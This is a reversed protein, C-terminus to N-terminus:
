ILRRIEIIALRIADLSWQKAARQDLLQRITRCAGELTTWTEGAEAAKSHAVGALFSVAEGREFGEQELRRLLARIDDALWVARQQELETPHGRHGHPEM